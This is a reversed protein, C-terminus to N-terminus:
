FKNRCFECLYGRSTSDGGSCKEHAWLNCSYCMIWDEIPPSEYLENCYICYYNTEETNTKANKKNSLRQIINAKNDGFGKLNRMRKNKM